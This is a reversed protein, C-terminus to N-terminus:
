WSRVLMELVYFSIKKKYSSFSHATYKTHEGDLGSLKSTWPFMSFAKPFGAYHYVRIFECLKSEEKDTEWEIERGTERENM